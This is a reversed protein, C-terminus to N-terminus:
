FMTLSDFEKPVVVAIDDAYARAAADPLLRTIRGLLVTVTVAFMLPSLPCVQRISARIRVGSDQTAAAALPLGADITASFSNSWACPGHHYGRIGASELEEHLFM